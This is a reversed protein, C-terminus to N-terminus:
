GPPLSGDPGLGARLVRELVSPPRGPRPEQAAARARTRALVRPVVDDGCDVAELALREARVPDGAAERALALLGLASTDGRDAAERALQAAGDPDRADRAKALTRLAYPDGRDAAERALQAAGDPNGADRAVALTRLAQADGLGAAERALREAEAPAHPERLRALLRLALTSGHRLEVRALREARAWDGRKAASEVYWRLTVGRQDAAFRATIRAADDHDGNEEALEALLKYAPGCGHDAAEQCLRRARETDGAGRRLRALELLASPSGHDAAIRCLREAVEPDARDKTEIWHPTVGQLISQHDDAEDLPSLDGRPAWRRWHPPPSADLLVNADHEGGQVAQWYLRATEEEDGARRRLVALPRLASVDGRDVAARYLREAGSWDGSARRMGAVLHLTRLDGRDLDAGALRDAGTSDGALERLQARFLRAGEYGGDLAVGYLRDAVGFRLRRRASDAVRAVEAPDVLGAVANWFSEPPCARARLRSGHYELYDALRFADDGAPPEEPRRRVRRFPALGGFVPATLHRLAEDFWAEGLDAADDDGLYDFAAARLFDARLHLGAGLRRADVAADLVARAGPPAQEYRRVLEPAGALIQTVRGGVAHTAAHALRGDGAAARDRLEKLAAADFASPVAVTRGTLLERLRSYPDPMGPRPLVTCAAVYEPWMTGLVLVPGRRPDTLLAHVAQAIRGGVAGAAGLSHQAENLWVVTRPGVRELEELTTRPQTHDSPHWLHWGRAALPQVAEWCARTKGTSPGGVLVAFGSEGDAAATVLRALTRDHRRTVYTPLDGRGTGPHGAPDPAPHVELDHPDWAGIPRGLRGGGQHRSPDPGAPPGAAPYEHRIVTLEHIIGSNAIAHGSAQVNGTDAVQVSAASRAADARRGPDTRGTM